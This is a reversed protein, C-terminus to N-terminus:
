EISDNNRKGIVYANDVDEGTGGMIKIEDSKLSICPRLGQTTKNGKISGDSDVKCLWLGHCVVM